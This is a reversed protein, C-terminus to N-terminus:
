FGATIIFDSGWWESVYDIEIYSVEKEIEKDVLFKINEIEYINDNENPEDLAINYTIGAWTKIKTYIRLTKENFENILKQKGNESIIFEM